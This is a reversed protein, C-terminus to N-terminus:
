RGHMFLGARAAQLDDVRRTRQHSLHMDFGFPKRSFAIGDQEDAMRGMFFNFAGHPFRGVRDSENLGEIVRLLHLDRVWLVHGDNRLCGETDIVRLGNDLDRMLYPLDFIGDSRTLSAEVESGAATETEPSPDNSCAILFLSALVGAILNKM